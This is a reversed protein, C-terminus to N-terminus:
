DEKKKRRKRKGFLRRWWRGRKHDEEYYGYGYGGYGGYGYSGYKGYGGYGYGGKAQVGNLIVGPKPLKQERYITDILQLANKPTEGFRTVFLTADVLRSLIFADTVLGAPSTDIIICDYASRAYDFFEDLQDLMLLEAPNPPVPGSPALHLNEHLPTLHIVDEWDAEGVLMNTVGPIALEDLVYRSLKPKRLDLGVLLTRKGSLAMSMGLNVTIFTKGEGSVTSTVLYVPTDAGGTVFHLNTRLFRFMEAISSRGGLKVVVRQEKKNAGIAGLFPTQTREQIDKDAYIKDDLMYLLFLIGGPLGLGLLWAISYIRNRKPEVLGTNVPEDILRSYPVQASLALATEERRQLLFLFLTEKIQQQRMVQLLERESRPISSIRARLPSLRQDILNEKKDLERRTTAVNLLIIDRLQDLQELQFRAAPNDPTAANLLQKRELAMENYQTVLTVLPGQLMESAVPLLEYRNSDAQFFTEVEDLLLQQLRLEALRSDQESLQDLVRGASESLELPIDQSRKMGEVQQEVEFLEETIFRLREDIFDLTNQGSQGKDELISANYEHVLTSLIDMAKDPAPDNLSLVLVDSNGASSINLRGAYRAATAEPSQIRIQVLDGPNAYEPRMGIQYTVDGYAFPVDFRCNLTDQEGILLLFEQPALIELRLTQGYAQEPPYAALLEVPRDSYRETTKIRGELFYGVNIDLSDVVRLMLSRSKLIQIENAVKTNKGYTFEESVIEELFGSSSREDKIFLSAQVNYVTEAYRLYTWAAAGAVALALVFWYWRRLFLFLIEKFDIGGGADEQLFPDNPNYQSPQDM